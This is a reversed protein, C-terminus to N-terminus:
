CNSLNKEIKHVQEQLIIDTEIVKQIKSFAHVVTSHDKGGFKTGIEPFSSKVHKRCLYMAIQRPGALSKVRSKGTLDVMKIKFYDAVTKQIKEVTLMQDISGLVNGLIDKALKVDMTIHNLTSFAFLRILAGELERVNSRINTALFMALDDQLPIRDTEAKKKLIAIRTELDPIQIDALLGWEFRSRLREELGPIERPPKDSTLVIQKQLDHLHNFTHFFEEQTREKGAIFQVDDVLLVDCTDRYKKRFDSMKQYRLCYILENMFREASLFVIRAQPTKKLIEIGIANLLHTKGLGVGGYIFLPNYNRGPNNSVSQAAAHAFQNSSGVVFQEFNYKPKLTEHLINKTTAEIKRTKPNEEAIMERSIKESDEVSFVIQDVGFTELRDKLLTYYNEKVWDRIFKNKVRLTLTKEELSHASVTGVWEPFSFLELLKSDLIELTESAGNNM